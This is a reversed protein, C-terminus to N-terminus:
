SEAGLASDIAARLETVAGVRWGSQFLVRGEPTQLMLAPRPADEPLLSRTYPETLHSYVFPVNWGTGRLKEFVAPDPHGGQPFLITLLGERKALPELAQALEQFDAGGPDAFVALFGRQRGAREFSYQVPTASSTDVLRPAVALVFNPAKKHLEGRRVRNAREVLDTAAVLVEHLGDRGFDIRATENTELRILVGITGPKLAGAPKTLVVHYPWFREHELLNQATVAAADASATATPAAAFLALCLFTLLAPLRM